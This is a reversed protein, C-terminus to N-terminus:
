QITALQMYIQPYIRHILTIAYLVKVTHIGIAM